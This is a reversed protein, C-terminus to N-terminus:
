LGFKARIKLIKQGEAVVSNCFDEDKIFGKLALNVKGPICGLRDAIRRQDGWKLSDKLGALVTKLDKVETMEKQVQNKYRTAIM